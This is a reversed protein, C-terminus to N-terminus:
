ASPDNALAHELGQPMAASNEYVYLGARLVTSLARLSTFLLQLYLGATAGGVALAMSPDAFSAHGGNVWAILAIPPVLGVLMIAFIVLGPAISERFGSKILAASRHFADSPGLGEAALILVFFGAFFVPWALNHAESLSLAYGDASIICFLSIASLFPLVFLSPHRILIRWSAMAVKLRRRTRQFM